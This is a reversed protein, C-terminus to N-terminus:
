CLSHHLSVHTYAVLILRGVLAFISSRVRFSSHLSTLHFSSVILLRKIFLLLLVLHLQQVHKLLSSRLNDAIVVNIEWSSILSCNTTLLVTIFAIGILGLTWHRVCDIILDVLGNNVLFDTFTRNFRSVHEGSSFNIIHFVKLDGILNSVKGVKVLISNALTLEM